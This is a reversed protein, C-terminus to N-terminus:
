TIAFDYACHRRLGNLNILLAEEKQSPTIEEEDEFMGSLM